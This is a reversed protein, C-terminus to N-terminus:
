ERGVVTDGQVKHASCLQAPLQAISVLIREYEVTCQSLYNLLLPKSISSKPFSLSSNFFLCIYKTKLFGLFGCGGKDKGEGEREGGGWRRGKSIYSVRDCATCM